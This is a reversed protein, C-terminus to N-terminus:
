GRKDTPGNVESDAIEKLKDAKDVGPSFMGVLEALMVPNGPTGHWSMKPSCLSLFGGLFSVHSMRADRGATGHSCGTDGM